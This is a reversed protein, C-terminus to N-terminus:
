KLRNSSDSECKDNPAEPMPMWHSLKGILPPDDFEMGSYLRYGMDSPGIEGVVVHGHLIFMSRVGLGPMREHIDIWDM